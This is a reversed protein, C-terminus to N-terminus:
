PTGVKLRSDMGFRILAALPGNVNLQLSVPARVGEEMTDGELKLAVSRATGEDVAYLEARLSRLLITRRGEEIAKLLPYIRGDKAMSSSLLGPQHLRLTAEVGPSLSLWGRGYTLGKPGYGIPVEGDVRGTAEANAEPFFKLLQAIDVGKLALTGAYDPGAPNLRTAAVSILGGLTRCQLSEVVLTEEGLLQFRLEIDEVLMDAIRLSRIFLRQGPGSALGSLDTLALELEIGTAELALESNSLRGGSLVLKGGAQLPELGHRLEGNARLHGSYEWGALEPPLLPGLLPKWAELDTALDHIRVLGPGQAVPEELSGSAKLLKGSLQWKANLQTGKADPAAELELSLPGEIGPIGLEIRADLSLKGFDPMPAAEQVPSAPPIVSPGVAPQALTKLWAQGDLHLELGEVRLNGLGGQAGERKELVIKGATLRQGRWVLAVPDMEMAETGVGSVGLGSVQVDYSELSSTLVRESLPVRWLWVLAALLLCAAGVGALFYM